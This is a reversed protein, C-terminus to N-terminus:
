EKVFTQKSVKDGKRFIIYYFGKPLDSININLKSETAEIKKVLSQGNWLELIYSRYPTIRLDNDSIDNLIVNLYENAPNPYISFDPYIKDKVDVLLIVLSGDGCQNISKITFVTHGKNVGSVIVRNGWHHYVCKDTTFFDPEWEIDNHKCETTFYVSSNRSVGVQVTNSYPNFPIDIEPSTEPEENISQIMTRPVGVWVDDKKLTISNGAISITAKIVERGNKGNVKEFVATGAGQGSVLALNGNSTSWTVTAGAPLNDITYSAQDCILNSGTISVNGFLAKKVAEYANVLGYGYTNDFGSQGLDKSTNQLITRVGTETLNPNVSLMLAVVGSVQPCAASTGNFDSRYNTSNVGLNGMRDITVVNGPVGGSPAVLDMSSGRQSYGWIVGKNNIAGVTIVGDINAPFGVDTFNPNGNGSAAVVICGLGNRGNTRANNIAATINNSPYGGGWSCSLIDARQSAWNIATAIEINTGFSGAPNGYYYYAFNPAINVPLIKVNNAIGKLGIGNNSAGIIGACAMGHSKTSVNNANQPVGYGNPNGITYGELVRNGMDEHNRDVGEDLVAVTISANGNTIDWAPEVNIDVGVTGGNQGTNKLYYQQPYLPNNTTYNLYMEPECWIVEKKKSLKNVLTLVDNSNNTICKLIVENNEDQEVIIKERFDKVIGQITGKSKLKLM